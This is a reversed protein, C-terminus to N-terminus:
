EGLYGSMKELIAAAKEVVDARAAPSAKLEDADYRCLQDLASQRLEELRASGSIDIGPILDVLTRLNRVWANVSRGNLKELPQGAADVFVGNEGERDGGIAKSIRDALREYLEIETKAVLEQERRRWEAQQESLDDGWLERLHATCVAEDPVPEIRWVFSYREVIQEKTPPNYNTGKHQIPGSPCAVCKYDRPNASGNLANLATQITWVINTAHDAVLKDREARAMRFYMKAEEVKETRLLRKGEEDSGVTHTRWWTTIEGDKTAIPDVFKSAEGPYLKKLVSLADSTTGQEANINRTLRSDKRTRSGGGLSLTTLIAIQSLHKM